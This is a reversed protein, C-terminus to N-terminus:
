EAAERFKQAAQADDIDGDLAPHERGIMGMSVGMHSWRKVRELDPQLATWDPLGVYLGDSRQEGPTKGLQDSPVKSTPALTVAPPIVPIIHRFGALWYRKWKAILAVPSVAPTATLVHETQNSNIEPATTM